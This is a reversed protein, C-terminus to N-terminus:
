GRLAGFLGILAIVLWVANLVVPQLDRKHASSLIIGGSGLLNLLLYGPNSSALTGIVNLMYAALILGVGLWGAASIIFNKM